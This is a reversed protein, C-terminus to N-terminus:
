KGFVDKCSAEFAELCHDIEAASVNLPPLFRISERAGAGMLLVNRKFAAKTIKQLAAAVTGHCSSISPVLEAVQM